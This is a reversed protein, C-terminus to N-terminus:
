RRVNRVSAVRYGRGERLGGRAARSPGTRFRSSNDVTQPSLPRHANGSGAVYPGNAPAAPDGPPGSATRHVTEVRRGAARGGRAARVCRRGTRGAGPAASRCRRPGPADARSPDCRKLPSTRTAPRGAATRWRRTGTARAAATWRAGSARAPERVAGAGATPSATWSPWVGAAPPTRAPAARCPPARAPTPSRWGCPRRPPPSPARM